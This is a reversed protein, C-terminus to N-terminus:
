QVAGRILRRLSRHGWERALDTVDAKSPLDDPLYIVSVAPSFRALRNALADAFSEEGRDFMIRCRRGGGIRSLWEEPWSRPDAGGTSTVANFGAHELNMQDFEGACIVVDGPPIPWPYLHIGRGRTARYKPQDSREPPRQREKVTRLTLQRRGQFIPITFWLGDTRKRLGLLRNRITIPDLAKQQRLFAIAEGNSWLEKAWLELKRNSVLDAPPREIPTSDWVSVHTLDYTLKVM